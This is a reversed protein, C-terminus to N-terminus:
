AYIQPNEWKQNWGDHPPYQIIAQGDIANKNGGRIDVVLNNPNKIHGNTHYKFSQWNYRLDEDAYLEQLTLLKGAAGSMDMTLYLGSGNIIHFWDTDGSPEIAWQQKKEQDNKKYM